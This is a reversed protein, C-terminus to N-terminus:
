HMNLAIMSDDHCPWWQVRPSWLVRALVHFKARYCCQSLSSCGLHRRILRRLFRPRNRSHHLLNYIHRWHCGCTPPCPPPKWRFSRSISLVLRSTLTLEPSPLSKGVQKFADTALLASGGDNRQLDIIFRTKGTAKSRGIFEGITSSFSGVAEASIDFSPISLIATVGDNLFYGTIVGGDLNGLNPQAVIPDEPYFNPYDWSSPTAEAAGTTTAAAEAAATSGAAGSTSAAATALTSAAAITATAPLEGFIFYNYLDQGSSLSPPDDIINNSYFALWPLNGTDSGNEFKFTINEGPYFISSGEFSSYIGQVDGAASSMMENWDAHPEVNGPSHIVAYQTLYKIVDEGNINAVASPKWNVDQDTAELLDDLVTNAVYRHQSASESVLSTSRQCNLEM